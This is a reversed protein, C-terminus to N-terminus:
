QAGIRQLANIIRKKPKGTPIGQAGIRRLFDASPLPKAKRKM